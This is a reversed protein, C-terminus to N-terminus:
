KDVTRTIDTPGVERREFLVRHPSNLFLWPNWLKRLGHNVEEMSMKSHQIRLGLSGEFETRNVSPSTSLM